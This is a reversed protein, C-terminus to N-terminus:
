RVLTLRRAVVSAGTEVRVVYVGAPLAAGDLVLTHEGAELAGEHVLAVRRGLVDYLAVTVAGAEALVVTVEAAVRSPNPWVSV